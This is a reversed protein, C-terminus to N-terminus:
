AEDTIYALAVLVLGFAAFQWNSYGKKKPEEWGVLHEDDMIEAPTVGGIIVVPTEEKMEEPEPVFGELEPKPSGQRSFPSPSPVFPRIAPPSVDAGFPDEEVSPSRKRKRRPPPTGTKLETTEAEKEDEQNFVQPRLGVIIKDVEEPDTVLAKVMPANDEMAKQIQDTILKKEKEDLFLRSGAQHAYLAEAFKTDPRRHDQRHAYHGTICRAVYQDRVRAYCYKMMPRGPGFISVLSHYAPIMPFPFEKITADPNPISKLAFHKEPDEVDKFAVEGQNSWSLPPIGPTHRSYGDLVLFFYADLYQLDQNTLEDLRKLNPLIAALMKDNGQWFKTCFEGISARGGIPVELKGGRVRFTGSVTPNPMACAGVILFYVLLAEFGQVVKHKLREQVGKTNKIVEFMDSWNAEHM